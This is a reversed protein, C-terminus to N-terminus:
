FGEPFRSDLPKKGIPVQATVLIRQHDQIHELVNMSYIFDFHDDAVPDLTASAAFGKRELEGRQRDDPEVCTVQMGQRDVIDAFTGVGAGFDLVRRSGRAHRLLEHVLYANYNHAEAMIELVDGGTYATSAATTADDMAIM